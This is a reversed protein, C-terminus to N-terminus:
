QIAGEAEAKIAQLRARFIEEAALAEEIMQPSPEAVGFQQLMKRGLSERDQCQEYGDPKPQITAILKAAIEAYKSPSEERLKEITEVGYIEFDSQFAKLFSASLKDRASPEIAKSPKKTRV